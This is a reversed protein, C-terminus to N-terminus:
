VGDEEEGRTGQVPVSVRRHRRGVVRLAQVSRGGEVVVGVGLGEVVVVVVVGGGGIALLVGGGAALLLVPGVGVGLLVAGVAATAVGRLSAPLVLKGGAVASSSATLARPLLALPRTRRGRM